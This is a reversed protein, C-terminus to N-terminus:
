AVVAKNAPFLVLISAPADVLSVLWSWELNLLSLWAVSVLM